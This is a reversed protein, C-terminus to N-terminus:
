VKEKVEPLPEKKERRVTNKYKKIIEQALKIITTSDFANANLKFCILTEKIDMAAEPHQALRKTPYTKGDNAKWGIVKEAM